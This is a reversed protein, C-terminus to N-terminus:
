INHGTARPFRQKVFNVVARSFSAHNEIFIMHSGNEILELEANKIRSALERSNGPPVVRDSDGSIVLVPCHVNEIRASFDFTMAAKVQAMYVSEDVPAQERLRCVQEVIEPHNKCFEDTFAPRIFKRVHEGPTLTPDPVFARLIEPEPRIHSFGGMSTCALVASNVRAPFSVALEQAIFGGFSTGVINTKQIGLHDLIGIVDDAFGRVDLRGRAANRSRGIGRPDFTVVRFENALASVIKFWSWSASAFGPILVLPEGDGHTEIFLDM